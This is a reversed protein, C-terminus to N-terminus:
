AIESINLIDRRIHQYKHYRRFGLTIQRVRWRWGLRIESADLLPLNITFRLGFEWGQPRHQETVPYWITAVVSDPFKAVARMEIQDKIVGANYARTAFDKNKEPLPVAVFFADRKAYVNDRFVWQIDNPQGNESLVDKFREVAADFSPYTQMAGKYM